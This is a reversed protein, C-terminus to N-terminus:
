VVTWQEEEDICPGDAHGEVAVFAEFQGFEALGVVEFTLGLGGRQPPPKKIGVGKNMERGARGQRRGIGCSVHVMVASLAKRLM